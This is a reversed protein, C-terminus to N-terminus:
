RYLEKGQFLYYIWPRAENATRHKNKKNLEGSVEPIVVLPGYKGLFDTLFGYYGVPPTATYLISVCYGFWKRIMNEQSILEWTFGM